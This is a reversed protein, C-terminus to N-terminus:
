DFSCDLNYKLNRDSDWVGWYKETDGSTKEEQKYPEDFAEFVFTNVGWGRMACVAEKYFEKANDLSPYANEYNSGDTPWGTEGVFFNIDTEGKATQISQLAQMIDDFFSFSANNMAQGQWYSFANAYIVDATKLVENNAGDILVNWSDVTGIPIGSYSNGDKDKIDAVLEKIQSISDSLESATLDGRYLAESGVLIAKVDSTSITPLLSSLTDKELQFKTSDTPWVSLVAQFGKESLLPGLMELTNCTSVSYIKVLKTYSSITDLDSSLDSSVKCSGDAKNVGLNFGLDSVANACGLLSLSLITLTKLSLKM